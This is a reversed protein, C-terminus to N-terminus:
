ENGAARDRREKREPHQEDQPDQNAEREPHQSNMAQRTAEERKDSAEVAAKVEDTDVTEVVKQVTDEANCPGPEVYNGVVDITKEVTEKLVKDPDKPKM